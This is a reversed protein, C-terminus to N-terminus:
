LTRYISSIYVLHHIHLLVNRRSKNCSSWYVSPTKIDLNLGCVFGKPRANIIYYYILEFEEINLAM